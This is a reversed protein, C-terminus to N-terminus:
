AKEETSKAFSDVFADTEEQQRQRSLRLMKVKELKTIRQGHERKYWVKEMFSKDEPTM